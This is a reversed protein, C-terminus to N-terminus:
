FGIGFTSTTNIISKRPLRSGKAIDDRHKPLVDSALLVFVKLAGALLGPPMAPSWDAEPPIAADNPKM